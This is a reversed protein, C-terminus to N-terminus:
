GHASRCLFMRASAQNRIAKIGEPIPPRQQYQSVHNEVPHAPVAFEQAAFFFDGGVDKRIPELMQFLFPDNHPGPIRFVTAAVDIRQRILPQIQHRDNQLDDPPATFVCGQRGASLFENGSDVVIAFLKNPFNVLANV